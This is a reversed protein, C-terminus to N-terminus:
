TRCRAVRVHRPVIEAPKVKPFREAFDTLFRRYWDATEPTVEKECDVLFQDILGAITLDRKPPAIGEDAMRRHWAALIEKPPHWEGYEKKPPPQDVPHKGLPIQM